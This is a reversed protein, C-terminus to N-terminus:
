QTGDTSLLDEGIIRIIANLQAFIRAQNAAATRIHTSLQAATLTTTGEAFQRLTPITAANEVFAQKARELLLARNYSVTASVIEEPTMAREEIFEGAEDFLEIRETTLNSRSILPGNTPQRREQTMDAM